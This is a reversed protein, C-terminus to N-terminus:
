IRVKSGTEAAEYVADIIRCDTLGDRGDPELAADTLLANAFYDFEQGVAYLGGSDFEV